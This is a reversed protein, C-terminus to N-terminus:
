LKGSVDLLDKNVGNIIDVLEEYTNFRGKFKLYNPHYPSWFMSIKYVKGEVKKNLKTIEFRYRGSSFGKMHSYIIYLNPKDLTRVDLRYLNTNLLEKIIKDKM